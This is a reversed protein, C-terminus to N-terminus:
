PKQVQVVATSNNDILAMDSGDVIGDGNVDEPNYGILVATSANDIAAMDSGDVIGDQTADGGWIVFVSGIQRLNSGYSQDGSTSFDFSVPASGGFSIPEFSWTEISSRHKIVIYYSGTLEAPVSNISVTGDVNLNLDPFSYVMSFPDTSQHLEVTIQDAVGPEFQPLSNGIAQNMTGAGAYLGELYLKINLTKSLTVTAENSYESNGNANYARVRYTYTNSSPSRNTWEQAFFASVWESIITESGLCSHTAGPIIHLESNVGAALLANHLDISYQPLITVDADGHVLVTPVDTAQLYNATSYPPSPYVWGRMEPELGGWLTANAILGTKNWPTTLYLNEPPFLATPDPGDFQCVTQATRGGASGGSIFILNPDIRYTAAHEKIWSIAANADRAADQLAPFEDAQTPMAAADRLRYDISVCVYGRKAFRNCYDVIYGQTRVSGTRFGGGHIWIIVPRGQTADGTPEYVDLFLSTPVNQYDIVDAFKVGSTVTVDTFRNAPVFDNPNLSTFDDTFSTANPGTFGIQTFLGGEPKREILFGDESVNIDSWNLEVQGGAVAATLGFPTSLAVSFHVQYTNTNLNDPSTVEVAATGPLSTVNTIVVSATPQAATATVTPLETTGAPLVVNYLLTGAAFGNVTTGNVKLDSLTADAAPNITLSVDDLYFLGTTNNGSTASARFRFYIHPNPDNVPIVVQHWQSITAHLPLPDQSILTWSTSDYSKEVYLHLNSAPNKDLVKVFFELTYAGTCAPTVLTGGDTGSLWKFKPTAIVGPTGYFGMGNATSSGVNSTNSWGSPPMTGFGQKFLYVNSASALSFTVHYTSTTVGDQATCVITATRQEPTGTLNVPQTVIYTAPPCGAAPIVFEPEADVVLSSTEIPVEIFYDLVAPDFGMVRVTQKTPDWGNPLWKIYTLSSNTSAPAYVFEVTYTLQTVGDQATVVVATTGPVSAPPTIIYTALGFNPTATVVPIAPSGYPIEYTYALTSPGFGAITTGNVELDSLTADSSITNGMTTFTASQVASENGVVDEVPSVALFYDQLNSLNSLPTITIITNTVDIVATFPIDVGSINDTKFAILSSVNANTIPTGNTNQIPENFTITPNVNVLVDNEGDSPIFTAVPPATEAVGTLIANDIRLSQGTSTPASTKYIQIFLQPVNECFSPLQPSTQTTNTLPPTYDPIITTWNTGDISVRLQFTGILVNSGRECYSFVLSSYSTTNVTFQYYDGITWYSGQYMKLNECPTTTNFNLSGVGSSTFSPTGGANDIVPTLVDEFTFQFITNQAVGSGAFSLFLLFILLSLYSKNRKVVSNGQSKLSSNYIRKM